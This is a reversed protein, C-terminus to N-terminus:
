EPRHSAAMAKSVYEMIERMSATEMGYITTEQRYM